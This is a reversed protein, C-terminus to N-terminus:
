AQDDLGPRRAPGQEWVAFLRRLAFGRALSVASFVAGIALNEGVTPHLGFLPFVAVQTAVALAYGVVLNAAAEVLSLAPSQSM